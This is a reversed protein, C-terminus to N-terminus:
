SSLICPVLDDLDEAPTHVPFPEVVVALAVGDLMVLVVGGQDRVVGGGVPQTAQFCEINEAQFLAIEVYEELRKFIVQRGPNHLTGDQHLWTHHPEPFLLFRREFV